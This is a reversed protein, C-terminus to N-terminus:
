HSQWRCDTEISNKGRWKWCPPLEWFFSAFSSTYESCRAPSLVATRNMQNLLFRSFDWGGVKLSQQFINGKRIVALATNHLLLVIVSSMCKETEGPLHRKKGKLSWNFYKKKKLTCMRPGSDQSIRQKWVPRLSVLDAM